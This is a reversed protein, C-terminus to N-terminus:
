PPQTLWPSYSVAGYLRNPGSYSPGSATGWWNLTANVQRLGPPASFSFGSADTNFLGFETNAAIANEHVSPKATRYTALGARNEVITNRLIQGVSGASAVGVDSQRVVNGEFRGRFEELLVAALDGDASVVLAGGSLHNREAVGDSIWLGSDVFTNSLIKADINNSECGQTLRSIALVSGQQFLNDRLVLDTDQGCIHLSTNTFRNHSISGVTGRELSNIYIDKLDNDEVDIRSGYGQFGRNFGALTNERISLQSSREVYVAIGGTDRDSYLTNGFLRTDNANSLKIATTSLPSFGLLSHSFLRPIENEAAQLLNYVVRSPTREDPIRSIRNHGVSTNITGDLQVGVTNGVIVNDVITVNSSRIVLIGTQPAPAGACLGAQSVCIRLFPCEKGLGTIVDFYCPRQVVEGDRIQNNRVIVHAQTNSIRIGYGAVPVVSWGEIVYPDEPTGRGSTVGSLPSLFDADSEVIIPPHPRPELAPLGSTIPAGAVALLAVLLFAKLM